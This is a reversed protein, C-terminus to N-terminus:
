FLSKAIEICEKECLIEDVWKKLLKADINPAGNVFRMRYATTDQKIHNLLFIVLNGSQYLGNENVEPEKVCVTISQFGNGDVESHTFVYPEMM